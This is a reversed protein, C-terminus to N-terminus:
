RSGRFGGRSGGRFGGRDGGRFGGRDGGRFGGRDGGRFGGRFGGRDGGRFGGRDGFGGKFGQKGAMKGQQDRPKAARPYAPRPLFFGTNRCQQPDAFLKDGAKFSEAKVGEDPKIAIGSKSIAGFVDDVKGVKNKNQLYINRMLLPVNDTTNYAILMGECAHSFEAVQEVYDPPGFDFGLILQQVVLSKSGRGGGGFGGRGGRPAGRFGGRDGGRFGGRGRM